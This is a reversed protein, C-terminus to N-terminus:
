EPLLFNHCGSKSWGIQALNLIATRAPLTRHQPACDVGGADVAEEDNKSEKGEKESELFGSFGEALKSVELAL